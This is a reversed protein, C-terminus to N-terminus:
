DPCYPLPLPESITRTTVRFRDQWAAPLCGTLSNGSLDLERLNILQGLEPPLPGTLRNAALHLKELSTMGIWEIPLPGTLQNGDLYLLELNALRAWAPPLPGTLRNYALHLRELSTMGIWEIPLPGTLQNGQLYLGQLQHLQAWAPPLPGTLQNHALELGQLQRLQGWAPPLPGTLQNGQLYLGQLQRLQSWEHPLPGTLQNRRLDLRQLQRLQGWAPPLPGTLRNAALHLKELSTMGIWEIPLPGTLQNGQLYLGQLQQLQAWAPPLSGSFGNAGLRLSQLNRFQGLADPLPGTLLNLALWLERLQRLQGLEPPIPGTLLNGEMRLVRLQRLQGLEPPIPGILDYLPVGYPYPPWELYGGVAPLELHLCELGTLQGLEPPLPAWRLRRLETVRGEPNLALVSCLAPETHAPTERTTMSMPPQVPGGLWLDDLIALVVQDNAAPTTGWQVSLTFEGKPTGGWGWETAEPATAPHSKLVHVAAGMRGSPALEPLQDAHFSPTAKEYHVRGDPAVRLRLRCGARCAAEPVLFRPGPAVAVERVITMPPRYAPPLVFMARAPTHELCAASAVFSTLELSVRAATRQLRYHGFHCNPGNLYFGTTAPDPTPSGTATVPAPFALLLAIGLLAARVAQVPLTVPHM